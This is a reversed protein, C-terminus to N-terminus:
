GQWKGPGRFWRAALVDTSSHALISGVVVLGALHAVESAYPIRTQLVHIGYVVTAFGKPGFWFAVLREKWPMVSGMLSLGLALPRVAILALVAFLFDRFTFTLLFRISILGGFALLAALKLSEAVLEGFRSFDRKFGPIATAVTVGGSFAALYENAGTAKSLSLILLGIALALLPSQAEATSLFPLKRVLSVALPICVGLAAGGAIRATMGLPDASGSGLASTLALVFPLALGDNLGSEVNLLHRLRGPIREMGVIAGALVPDTPSLLAGLLCAPLWPLGLLFHALVATGALTLPLGLILARGPLSWAKALDRVTLKMGDTFLISLLALRALGAIFPMEPDLPIWGAAGKGAIFGSGLVLVASSLISKNFWGSVLVVAILTISFVLLFKDGIAMNKISGTRDFPEM